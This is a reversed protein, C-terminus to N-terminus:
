NATLTAARFASPVGDRTAWVLIQHDGRTLVTDARFRNTGTANVDLEVGDIQARLSDAPADITVGDTDVQVVIGGHNAQIPRTIPLSEVAALTRQALTSLGPCNDQYPIQAALLFRRGSGDTILGHDLCENNPVWGPKHCIQSSGLAADAGAKFYSPTAGCLADRVLTKDADAIKFREHEPIESDLLVRRVAETLEILNTDNRGYEGLGARGPVYTEKGNERLWYGGPNRVEVSAYSGTIVTQPFGNEPTLFDANMFDWGAARLTRDYDINSSVRLARDVISGLNDAFGSDWAVTAAGTHGQQNVWELAGLASLLKITSAPWFSTDFAGLGADFYQYRAFQAGPEVPAVVVASGAPM